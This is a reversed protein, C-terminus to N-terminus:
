GEKSQKEWEQINARSQAARKLIPDASEATILRNIEDKSKDPDGQQEYSEILLYDAWNRLPNDPFLEKASDFAEIAAKFRNMKFLSSGLHYYSKQIYDPIVREKRDYEAIANQYSQAAEAYKKMETKVEAILYHIAAKNKSLALLDDFMALAGLFNGNGKHAQALLKKAELLRKSRPFNKIFSRGVM